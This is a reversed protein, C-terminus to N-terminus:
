RGGAGRRAYAERCLAALALLAGALLYIRGPDRSVRITTWMRVEPFSMSANASEFVEGVAVRGDHIVDKNRAIRVSLMPTGPGGDTGPYYRVYYTLPSLLRFFDERGPPFINLSVFASDLLRGQDSMLEYRPAYGFEDGLSIRYGYASIGDTDRAITIAGGASGEERAVSLHAALGELLSGDGSFVPELGELTILIEPAPAYKGRYGGSSYGELEAGGLSQGETIVMDASYGKLAGIWYGATMLCLSAALAWATVGIAARRARTVLYAVMCLLLVFSCAFMPVSYLIQTMAPPDPAILGSRLVATYTCAFSLAALALFRIM